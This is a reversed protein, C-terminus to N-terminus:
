TMEPVSKDRNQWRALNYWVCFFKVLLCFFRVTETSFGDVMLPHSPRPLFRFGDALPPLNDGGLDGGDASCSNWRAGSARLASSPRM